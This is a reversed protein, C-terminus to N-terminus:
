EKDNIEKKLMTIFDKIKKEGLVKEERTRVNVTKNEVEKDGIVVIYNVQELQAERIKKNMTEQKFNTEARIDEDKLKKLLKEAEGNHRDAITLIKVQVPSLWLPFKGAHHEILLALFREYSGLIARHIMVPHSEGGKEDAYKLNFSKPMAFDIQVTALQWERNLSDKFMFDLKPGYIAAEGENRRAKLGLEINIENLMDEADFWDEENGIYNEPKAPDRVSLSVWHNGYLGLKTYFEKIINCIIKAEKKIQDVTCFIHGDDVTIARVRALGSLEGPKEDRYQMTSEMYRLPLEKYSRSKSAYIQTHHPCNVPKLVLDQNYHGKVKFLEEEFKEAHGSKKYLDIKAMHPITVKKYDYKKSIRELEKQLETRIATGKPTFLPLGSGVLESFTFLDMERGIKRHDRKKAEEISKLYEKLQKKDPYSIGYIRQLQKNKEDAKWYAGSIKTLKFAKIMGTRPLHPGRCLDCFEGQKYVSIKEKDVEGFEDVNKLIELKYKNDKFMKKAKELSIEERIVPHNEKVIKKMEAEIKDLDEEKFPAHDIDYYFGEKIAPGITLKAEPFLRLVAQAMLHASSHWFIEKGVDEKFTIININGDSKLPTTLDLLESNFEIAIAQRTLFDSISSAIELGTVEKKFSKTNGDPFTIKIM